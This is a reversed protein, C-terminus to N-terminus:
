NQARFTPMAFACKEPAGTKRDEPPLPLAKEGGLFEGGPGIVQYYVTDADDARLLERAPLIAPRIPCYPQLNVTILQALTRGVNYELARDFPKGAIGQAVLWTLVLSIPWLLLLPTLM